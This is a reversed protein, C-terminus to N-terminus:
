LGLRASQSYPLHDPRSAADPSSRRPLVATLKSSSRSTPRAIEVSGFVMLILELIVRCSLALAWAISLPSPMSQAVASASANPVSQASPV